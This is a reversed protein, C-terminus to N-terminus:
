IDAAPNVRLLDAFKGLLIVVVDTDVTRVLGTAGTLLAHSLHVIIHTDAEEHNCDPIPLATGGTLM